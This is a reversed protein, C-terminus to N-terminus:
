GVIAAELKDLKENLVQLFGVVRDVVVADLQKPLEKPLEESKKGQNGMLMLLMMPDTGGGMGSFATGAQVIHSAYPVRNKRSAMAYEAGVHRFFLLKREASSLDLSGLPNLMSELLKDKDINMGDLPSSM